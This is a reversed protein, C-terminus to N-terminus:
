PDQFPKVPSECSKWCPFTAFVLVSRPASEILGHQFLTHAQWPSRAWPSERPLTSTRKACAITKDCCSFLIKSVGFACPCVSVRVCVCVDLHEMSLLRRTVQNARKAQSCHSLLAELLPRVQQLPMMPSLMQLLGYLVPTFCLVLPVCFLYVTRTRTHFSSASGCAHLVPSALAGPRDRQLSERAAVGTRKACAATVPAL